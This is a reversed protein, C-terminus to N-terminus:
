LTINYVRGDVTFTALNDCTGSGYDLTRDSRGTVSLVITGQVFHWRGAGSPCTFDRILPNTITASYTNGSATTGSASGTIQIKDDWLYGPTTYGALYTRTRQSNWTITGGNNALEISGNVNVNFFPQGQANVGGNTLTKTGLVKNDNVYYNDFTITIVTGQAWYRGTHNIIIKGRRKRGDACLQDTTGFDITTTYQGGPGTSDRTIIVTSLIGQDAADKYNITGTTSAQDAMNHVDNYTGEALAQNTAEDTTTDRDKKCSQLATTAILATCLIAATLIKKM